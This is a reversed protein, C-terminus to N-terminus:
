PLSYHSCSCDKQVQICSPTVRKSNEQSSFKSTNAATSEHGHIVKFDRAPRASPSHSSISGAKSSSKNRKAGLGRGTGCQNSLRPGSDSMAEWPSTRTLLNNQNDWNGVKRTSNAKNEKEVKCCCEATQPPSVLFHKSKM